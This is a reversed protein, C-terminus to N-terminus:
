GYMISKMGGRAALLTRHANFIANMGCSYLYIDDESATHANRTRTQDQELELADELPVDATLTGAIRRKIALKAKEAFKLELNRGFREEIFRTSDLKESDTDPTLDISLSKKDRYRRLGKYPRASDENKEKLIGAVLLEHSYEARRSSVGDGTHQWYAKALPWHEGPFLVASIWSTAYRTGESEQETKSEYHVVRIARGDLQPANRLIFEVCRSATASSPFLM